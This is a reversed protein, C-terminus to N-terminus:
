EAILGRSPAETEESPVPADVRSFVGEVEGASGVSDLVGSWFCFAIVRCCHPGSGPSSSSFGAKSMVGSFISPRSDVM